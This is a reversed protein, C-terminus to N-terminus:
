KIYQFLEAGFIARGVDGADVSRYGTEENFWCGSSRCEDDCCHYNNPEGYSVDTDDDEHVWLDTGHDRWFTRLLDCAQEWSLECSERASPGDFLQMRANGRASKIKHILRNLAHGDDGKTAEYCLATLAADGDIVERAM